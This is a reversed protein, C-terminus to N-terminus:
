IYFFFYFFYKNEKYFNCVSPILDLLCYRKVIREIIDFRCRPKHGQCYNLIEQLNQDIGGRRYKLM